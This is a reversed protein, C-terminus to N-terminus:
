QNTDMNIVSWDNMNTHGGGNYKLVIKYNKKGDDGNEEKTQYYCKIVYVSDSLKGFQYGTEPFTADSKITPKLFEKAVEYADDNTPLGTSYEYVNGSLAYKAIIAVFIIVVVVILWVGKMAIQKKESKELLYNKGM